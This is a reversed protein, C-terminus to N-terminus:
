YEQRTLLSTWKPTFFSFFINKENIICLNAQEFDIGSVPKECNLLPHFVKASIKIQKNLSGKEYFHREIRKSLNTVLKTVVNFQNASFPSDKKSSELAALFPALNQAEKIYWIGYSPNGYTDGKKIETSFNFIYNQKKSRFLLNLIEPPQQLNFKNNKSQLICDKVDLSFDYLIDQPASLYSIHKNKYFEKQTELSLCFTEKNSLRSLYQTAAEPLEKLLLNNKQSLGEAIVFGRAARKELASFIIQIKRQSEESLSSSFIKNAEWYPQAYSQYMGLNTAEIFANASLALASLINKNHISVENLIQSYVINKELSALRTKNIISLINLQTECFFIFYLTFILTVCLMLLATVLAQGDQANFSEKEKIPFKFYELVRKRSNNNKYETGSYPLRDTTDLGEIAYNEPFGYEYIESSAQWPTFSACRIRWAFTSFDSYRGLRDRIGSKQDSLKGVQVTDENRVQYAIPQVHFFYHSFLVPLQATVSLYVGNPETSTLMEKNQSFFDVRIHHHKIFSLEKSSNNIHKYFFLFMKHKSLSSEISEEIKRSIMKENKYSIHKIKEFYIQYISIQQVIEDTLSQLIIKFAILRSCEIFGYTMLIILINVIMGEVLTQGSQKGKQKM